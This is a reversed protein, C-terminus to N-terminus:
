ALHLPGLAAIVAAAVGIGFAPFPAEVQPVAADDRALEALIIRRERRAITEVLRGIEFADRPMQADCTRDALDRRPEAERLRLRRYPALPRARPQERQALRAHVRLEVVLHEGAPVRQRDLPHGEGAAHEGLGAPAR